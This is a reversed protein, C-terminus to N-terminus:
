LTRYVERLMSEAEESSVAPERRWSRFMQLLEIQRVKVNGALLGVEITRSFRERDNLGCRAIESMVIDPYLARLLSVIENM